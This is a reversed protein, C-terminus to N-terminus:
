KLVVLHWASKRQKTKTEVEGIEGTQKLVELADRLDRTSLAKPYGPRLKLVHHATRPGHMVAPVMIPPQQAACERLLKKVVIQNQLRQQARGISTAPSTNLLRGVFVHAAEDWGFRMTQDSRGLNSKQLELMLAGTKLARAAARGNEGDESETEPYLYWRARVSNHWGTSGSYGEGTTISNATPKAVHGVLLVAGEDPPILGVLRNVFSKVDSRANENGGFTDSIGDIVILEPRYEQVVRELEAFSATKTSGTKGNREWLISEHGVLDLVLLSGDLAALDVHLHDCIRTLRWHLVNERDECSVYLVKRRESEIGFFPMGQAICVALTLAIGSKGVGGHGALLTAYGCPLWDRLIFSPPQPQRAALNVLDLPEPWHLEPPAHEPMPSYRDAPWWGREIGMDYVARWTRGFDDGCMLVGYVDFADRPKRMGLEDVCALPDHAPDHWSILSQGDENLVIASRRSKSEPAMFRDRSKQEYGHERLLTPLEAAFLENFRHIMGGPSRSPSIGKALRKQRLREIVGRAQEIIKSAPFPKGEFKRSIVEWDDDAAGHDRPPYAPFYVPQSPKAMAPDLPIHLEALLRRLLDHLIPHQEVTVECDTEFVIRLRPASRRHSWTSTVWAKFQNREIWDLVADVQQPGQLRDADLAILRWPEANADCRRGDGGIPRSWYPGEKRDRFEHNLLLEDLEGETLEVCPEFGDERRVAEVRPGRSVAFRVAALDASATESATSGSEVLEEAAEAGRAEDEASRDRQPEDVSAPASSSGPDQGDGMPSTEAGASASSKARPLSSKKAATARQQQELRKAGIGGTAEGAAPPMVKHPHPGEIADRRPATM